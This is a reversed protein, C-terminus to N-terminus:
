QENSMVRMGIMGYSFMWEFMGFGVLGGWWKGVIV